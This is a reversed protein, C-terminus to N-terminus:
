VGDLMGSSIAEAVLIDGDGYIRALMTGKPRISFGEVYDLEQLVRLRVCRRMQPPLDEIAQGVREQMEKGLLERLPAPAEASRPNGGAAAPLSDGVDRGELPVSQGARKAASRPQSARTM